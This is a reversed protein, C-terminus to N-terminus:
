GLGACRSRADHALGLGPLPVGLAACEVLDRAGALVAVGLDAQDDHVARRRGLPDLGQAADAVVHEDDPVGVVYRAVEHQAEANGDGAGPAPALEDRLARGLRAELLDVLADLADRILDAHEVLDDVAASEYLPPPLLDHAAPLPQALRELALDGCELLM